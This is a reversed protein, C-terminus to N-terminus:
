LWYEKFDDKTILRLKMCKRITMPIDDLQGHIKFSIFIWLIENYYKLINVLDNGLKSIEAFCEDV